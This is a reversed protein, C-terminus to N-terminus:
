REIQNLVIISVAKAGAMSFVTLWITPLLINTLLAKIANNANGCETFLRHHKNSYQLWKRDPLRIVWEKCDFDRVPGPAGNLSM